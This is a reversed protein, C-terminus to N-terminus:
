MLGLVWKLSYRKLKERGLDCPNIQSCNSLSRGGPSNKRCTRIRPTKVEPSPGDDTGVSGGACKRHEMDLGGRSMTDDGADHLLRNSIMLTVDGDGCAKLRQFM